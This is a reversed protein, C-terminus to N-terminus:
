GIIRVIAPVKLESLVKWFSLQPNPESLMETKFSVGLPVIITDFLPFRLPLPPPELPAPATKSM